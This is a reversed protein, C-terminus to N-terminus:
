KEVFPVFVFGAYIEELFKTKSKRTIKRIDQKQTPGVFIGGVKLQELLEKPVKEFAAGAHIKDYPANKRWFDAANAIKYHVNKAGFKKINTTGFNGVVNNIEYAFVEGNKRVIEGLLCSTWGSGAGIDLVKDGSKLSLLELMFVVTTPQSITQGEAIPLPIDAYAYNKASPTVFLARDVELLAKEITESKLIGDRVLRSILNELSEKM